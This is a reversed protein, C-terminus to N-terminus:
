RLVIPLYVLYPEGLLVVYGMDRIVTTATGTNEIGTNTMISPLTLTTPLSVWQNLTVDWHYLSLTNAQIGEIDSASFRVKVTTDQDLRGVSEGGLSRAELDFGHGASALQSPLSIPALETIIIEFDEAYANPPISLVTGNSPSVLNMGTARNVTTSRRPSHLWLRYSTPGSRAEVYPDNYRGEWGSPDVIKGQFYISLHLHSGFCNGTCGITGIQENAAISSGVRNHTNSFINDEQLHGYLSEYGTDGHRVRVQCGYYRYNYPPAPSRDCFASIITGNAVPFVPTGGCRSLDDFDYGEHGDYSNVFLSYGAQIEEGWFPVLYGDGLGNDANELPYRHDFFSTTCGQWATIFQQETSGGRGPYNVPLDFVPRGSVSTGYVEIEGIFLWDTYYTTRTKKLTITVSSLTANGAHETWAGSYSSGPNTATTGFPTTMSDANWTNAFLVNGMNYRIRSVDYLGNLDITVTIIMLQDYDDNVYGVTGDEQAWSSHIYDLSGDTIDSPYLGPSERTDNAGNTVVTVHKGLAVNGSELNVALQREPLSRSSQDAKVPPSSVAIVSTAVFCIVAIWSSLRHVM